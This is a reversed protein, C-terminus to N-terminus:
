FILNLGFTVSRTRPYSGYDCGETQNNNNYSVDPDFGKYKTFTLLDQGSIYIRLREIGLRKTAPILLNYGLAVNRLKLYSGKEVWRSSSNASNANNAVPIDTDRNSETWRNLVTTMQNTKGNVWELEMRMFNYMDNGVVGQFFLNLDFNKYNFTNNFGLIFDPNPNGIITRDDNMNVQGDPIPVWNGNADRSGIDRFIVKGTERDVGDFIYGYFSGVPEGETLIHTETFDTIHGPKRNTKVEGLPLELV